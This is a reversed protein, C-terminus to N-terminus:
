SLKLKRYAVIAILSTIGVLAGIVIINDSTQPNNTEGPKNVIIDSFQEIITGECGSDYNVEYITEEGNETVGILSTEYFVVKIKNGNYYEFELNTKKTSDLDERETETKDSIVRLVNKIRYSNQIIKRTTYVGDYTYLTVSKIGEEYPLLEEANVSVLSIAVMVLLLLLYKIHKM